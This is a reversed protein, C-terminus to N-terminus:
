KKATETAADEYAVLELRALPAADGKRFGLHYLRTYGGASGPGSTRAAFKPAIIDFLKQAAGLDFLRSYVLRRAHLDGRQALTILKEVHSQVEKAKAETTTIKEYQILSASMNRLLASRHDSPRSLRRGAMRHRM